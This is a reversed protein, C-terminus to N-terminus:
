EMGAAIAMTRLALGIRAVFPEGLAAFFQQRDAVDMDNEGQRVLERPQSQLVLFDDVIEQEAGASRRQQLNGGVGFMKSRFDAKQTHEVGPALIEQMMRVNM